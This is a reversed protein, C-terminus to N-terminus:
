PIIECFETKKSSHSGLVGCHSLLFFKEEPGKQAEKRTRSKRKKSGERKLNFSKTGQHFLHSKQHHHHYNPVCCM